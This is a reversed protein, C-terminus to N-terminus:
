IDDCEEHYGCTRCVACVKGGDLVVMDNGCQICQRTKVLNRQGNLDELESVNTEIM